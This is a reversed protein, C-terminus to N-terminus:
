NRIKYPHHGTLMEYLVLGLSWWDVAKTHGNGKVIEPALYEPTGCFSYTASNHTMLGQKSLGFDTLKVHGSQDILINEPKLDRYLIGLSHLHELALVIEAAYFRAREEVFRSERKLHYFIEGGNIFEMILYLKTDTQFAYQLKVIFPHDIKSM